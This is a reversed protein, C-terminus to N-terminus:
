GEPISAIGSNRALVGATREIEFRRTPIFDTATMEAVGDGGSFSGTLVGSGITLSSRRSISEPYQM